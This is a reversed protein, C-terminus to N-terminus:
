TKTQPDIKSGERYFTFPCRSKRPAEAKVYTAQWGPPMFKEFGIESM